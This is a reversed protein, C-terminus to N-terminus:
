YKVQDFNIAGSSSRRGSNRPSAGSHHVELLQSGKRALKELSLPEYM